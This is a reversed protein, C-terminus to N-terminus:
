KSVRKDVYKFRKGLSGSITSRHIGLIKSAEKISSYYNGLNDVISRTRPNRCSPQTMDIKFIYKGKITKIGGELHQCITEHVVGIQKAAASISSYKNGFNDILLKTFGVKCISKKRVKALRSIDIIEYKKNEEYYRFFYGHTTNCQGSLQSRIRQTSINLLKSAFDVNEYIVLNQDIIPKRNERRVRVSNHVATPSFAGEGGKTMNVLPDGRKICREIWQIEKQALEEKNTEELINITIKVKERICKRIWNYLYTHSQSGNYQSPSLHSRPRQLRSSSKGIYRLKEGNEYLGYIIFKDSESM